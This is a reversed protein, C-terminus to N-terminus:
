SLEVLPLMNITSDINVFINETRLKEQLRSFPPLFVNQQMKLLEELFFNDCM